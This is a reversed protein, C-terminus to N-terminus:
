WHETCYQRVAFLGRVFLDRVRSPIYKENSGVRGQRVMGQKVTGYM